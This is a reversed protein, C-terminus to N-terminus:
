IVLPGVTIWESLGDLAGLIQALVARTAAPSLGFPDNIQPPGDPRFLGLLTSRPLAEPFESRLEELNALDMCVILDAADVRERTLRSSRCTSMDVALTRATEAVHRPTPRGEETHFGASHVAVGALRSRAAEAAFPSRCINGLCVFLVSSVSRERRRRLGYQTNHHRRARALAVHDSVHRVLSRSRGALLDSIEGLAVMPDRLSWGDWSERGSLAWLWGLAARWTPQTLLLRDSRDARANAVFWQLDETLNRARAGVRWAPTPPLPAQRALALMGLPVDVGASITLPLSGWLRPNIEMLQATGTQDRRWEVMAVGHWHLHDLLRRTQEVLHAEAGCARRWTSAGGTLPWEHLREHVFHWAMRGSDYLVEVGVGRGPIWVQEQVATFPLWAALIEDREGPHRVVMVPLTMLRSGVVVKSRVPKLVKPFPGEARPAVEGQPLLSSAPVPIDLASAIKRTQEKDLAADLAADSPLVAKTRLPHSEPLRCLWRLSAETAPLVLAFSYERDLDLLWAMGVAVPESVPQLHVRHCWRSRETGSDRHRVGAHVTLGARGLSQVCALGARGDADLVLVPQGASM